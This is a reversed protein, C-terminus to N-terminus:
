EAKPPAVDLLGLAKELAAPGRLSLRVGLGHREPILWAKCAGVSGSRVLQDRVVGYRSVDTKSLRGVPQGDAACVVIAEGDPVLVADFGMSDKIADRGAALRKLEPQCLYEDVLNLGYRKGAALELRPRIPWDAVTFKLREPEEERPPRLTGTEVESPTMISLRVGISIDEDWGGILRGECVGVAGTARLKEGLALYRGSAEDRQFYGVRGYGEAHVALANRDYQNEPDPVILCVIVVDGGGQELRGNDVSRLTGQYNSEGVVDFWFGRGGTLSIRQRGADEASLQTPMQSPGTPGSGFLKSIIVISVFVCAGGLILTALLELM